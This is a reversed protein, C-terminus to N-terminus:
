RGVPAALQQALRGAVDRASRVLLSRDLRGVWEGSLLGAGKADLAIRGLVPVPLGAQRLV